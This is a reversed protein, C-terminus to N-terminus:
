SCPKDLEWIGESAPEHSELLKIGTFLAPLCCIETKKKSLVSFWCVSKYSSNRSLTHFHLSSLNIPMQLLNFILM